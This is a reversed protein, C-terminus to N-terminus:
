SAGAGAAGASNNQGGGGSNPRGSNPRGGNPKGGNPKGGNTRPIGEKKGAGGRDHPGPKNDANKFSPNRCQRAIHGPKGCNYCTVSARHNRPRGQRKGPGGGTGSDPKGEEDNAKSPKSEPVVTPKPPEPDPLRAGKARKQGFNVVCLQCLSTTCYPCEFATMGRKAGCAGCKFKQKQPVKTCFDSHLCVALKEDDTRANHKKWLAEQKSREERQQGAKEENRSDQEAQKAEAKAKKRAMQALQRELLEADM